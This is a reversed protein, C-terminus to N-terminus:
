EELPTIASLCIDVGHRRRDQHNTGLRLHVVSVPGRPEQTPVMSQMLRMMIGRRPNLLDQRREPAPAAIAPGLGGGAAPEGDVAEDQDDARPRM